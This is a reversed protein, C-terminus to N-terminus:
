YLDPIREVPCSCECQRTMGAPYFRDCPRRIPFVDSRSTEILRYSYPISQVSSLGDISQRMRIIYLGNGPRRVALINSRRSTIRTTLSGTFMEYVNPVRICFFHKELVVTM